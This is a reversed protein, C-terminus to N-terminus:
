FEDKKWVSYYHKDNASYEPAYEINIFGCAMLMRELMIAQRDFAGIILLSNKNMKERLKGALEIRDKAELYPWFNRCMFVNDGYKVENVTSIADNLSFNVEKKLTNKPKIFNPGDNEFYEDWRGKTNKVMSSREGSTIPYVGKKIAKMIEEDYDSASIPLFKDPNQSNIKIAAAMSYPESGDSCGISYVNVKRSDSFNEDLYKALEDWVLDNRFFWTTNRHVVRNDKDKVERDNACFPIKSLYSLSSVNLNM